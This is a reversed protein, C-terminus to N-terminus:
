LQALCLLKFSHPYKRERMSFFRSFVGFSSFVAINQLFVSFIRFIRASYSFILSIRFHCIIFVSNLGFFGVVVGNRAAFFSHRDTGIQDAPMDVGNNQAAEVVAVFVAVIYEVFDFAFRAPQVGDFLRRKVTRQLPQFRQM